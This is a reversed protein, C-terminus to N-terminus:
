GCSSDVCVCRIINTPEYVNKKQRFSPMSPALFMEYHFSTSNFYLAREHVTYRQYLVPHVTPYVGWGHLGVIWKTQYFYFIVYLFCYM